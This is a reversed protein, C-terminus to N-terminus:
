GCNKTPMKLELTVKSHQIMEIGMMKSSADDRQRKSTNSTDIRESESLITNLIYVSQCKFRVTLGSALQVIRQGFHCASRKERRTMPFRSGGAM